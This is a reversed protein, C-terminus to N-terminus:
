QSQQTLQSLLSYCESPFFEIGLIEPRILIAHFTTQLATRAKGGGKLSEGELRGVFGLNLGPYQPAINEQRGAGRTIYAGGM